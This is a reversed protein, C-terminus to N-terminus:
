DDEDGTPCPDSASSLLPKNAPLIFSTTWKGARKATALVPLEPTEIYTEGPRLTTTRCPPGQTIKFRGEQVQFIV